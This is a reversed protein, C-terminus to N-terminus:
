NVGSFRALAVGDEGVDVGGRGYARVGTSADDPGRGGRTHTERRDPLAAIESGKRSAETEISQCCGWLCGYENETYAIPYRFRVELTSSCRRAAKKRSRDIRARV